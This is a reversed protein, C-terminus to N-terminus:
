LSTATIIRIFEFRIAWKGIFQQNAIRNCSTSIV